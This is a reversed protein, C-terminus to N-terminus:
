FNKFKNINSNQNGAAVEATVVDGIELVHGLCM